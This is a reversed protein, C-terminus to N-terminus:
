AILKSAEVREVYWTMLKQLPMRLVLGLVAAPVLFLALEGMQVWFDNGYVGMMAARMANVVHTAPLWPSLEQVFQPMIQLPFSGGCGTVQVILLLVAVAKGLNAFTAVLAYITFSFVLGAAWFCLMLLWPHPAQVQLFFINGLGMLTSQMLSIAAISCFRGLFTQWPKPDNLRALARRSVTTRVAVM